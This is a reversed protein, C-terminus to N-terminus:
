SELFISLMALMASLRDLHSKMDLIQIIDMFDDGKGSDKLIKYGGIWINIFSCM